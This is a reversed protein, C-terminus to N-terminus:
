KEAHGGLSYRSPKVELIQEGETYMISQHAGAFDVTNNATNIVCISAVMGDTLNVQNDYKSFSYTLHQDIQELIKSPNVQKQVAVIQELLNIGMVALMAGPVGHGTCDVLAVVKLDGIDHVWYFDGGILEKPKYFIFHDKFCRSFDKDTPTLAMQIRQAYRMSDFLDQTAEGLEQTREEVEQELSENMEALSERAKFLKLKDKIQGEVSLAIYTGLIGLGVTYSFRAILAPTDAITDSDTFVILMDVAMYAISIILTERRSYRMAVAVISVYWLPFFPSNGGGTVLLWLGILATDTATSFASSMLLPFRKHPEFVLVGFAYPVAIIQLAWAIWLMDMSQHDMFFVFNLCNSLIIFLRGKGVSTEAEQLKKRIEEQYQRNPKTM